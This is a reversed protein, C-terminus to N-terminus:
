SLRAKKVLRHIGAGALLALLDVAIVLLAPVLTYDIAQPTYIYKAASLYFRHNSPSPGGGVTWDLVAIAIPFWLTAAACGGLFAVCRSAGFLCFRAFSGLFLAAMSFLAAYFYSFSLSSVFFVFLAFIGTHFVASTLFVRPGDLHFPM